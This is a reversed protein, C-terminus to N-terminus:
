ATAPAGSAEAKGFALMLFIIINAIPVIMLIGWWNPKGVKECIAMWILVIFVLNVIPILLLIIWWLPKDAISILYFINVIPILMLIFSKGFPRGLKVAIKALCYVFFLYIIVEAILFGILVGGSMAQDMQMQLQDPNM